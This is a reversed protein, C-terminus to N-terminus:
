ASREKVQFFWSFQLHQCVQLFGCMYVRSQVEVWRAFMGDFLYGRCLSAHHCRSVYFIVASVLLGCPWAIGARDLESRPRTRIQSINTAACSCRNSPCGGIPSDLRASACTVFATAICQLRNQSVQTTKKDKSFFQLRPNSIEKAARVTYIWKRRRETPSM